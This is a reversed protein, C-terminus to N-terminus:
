LRGEAPHPIRKLESIKEGPKAHCIGLRNELIGCNM